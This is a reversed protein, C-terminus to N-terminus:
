NKWILRILVANKSFSKGSISDNGSIGGLFGMNNCNEDIVESTLDAGCNGPDFVFVTKNLFTYEKLTANQSCASNSTFDVLKSQICEPVFVSADKSCSTVILFIILFIKVFFKM